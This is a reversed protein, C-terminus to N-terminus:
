GGQCILRYTVNLNWVGVDDLYPGDIAERVMELLTWGTFSLAAGDYVGTLAECINEAETSADAASVIKFEVLVDEFRPVFSGLVYQAGSRVIQYVILPYDDQTVGSPTRGFYMGSVLDPLSSAEYLAYIQNKIQRRLDSM